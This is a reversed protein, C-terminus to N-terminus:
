DKKISSARNAKVFQKMDQELKKRRQKNGEGSGTTTILKLLMGVYEMCKTMGLLSLDTNVRKTQADNMLFYAQM